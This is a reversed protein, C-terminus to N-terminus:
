INSFNQILRIICYAFILITLKQSLFTIFFVIRLAPSAVNRDRDKKYIPILLLSLSSILFPAILLFQNVGALHMLKVFMLRKDEEATLLIGLLVGYFPIFYSILTKATNIQDLITQPEREEFSSSSCVFVLDWVIYVVTAIYLFIHSNTFFAGLFTIACVLYAVLIYPKTFM